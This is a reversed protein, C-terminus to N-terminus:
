ISELDDYFCLAMHRYISQINLISYIWNIINFCTYKEGMKVMHLNIKRGSYLSVKDAIMGIVCPTGCPDM